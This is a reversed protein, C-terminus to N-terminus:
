NFWATRPWENRMKIDKSCTGSHTKVSRLYKFDKVNELPVQYLMIQDQSTNYKGAVHM